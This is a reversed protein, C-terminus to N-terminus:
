LTCSIDFAVTQDPLHTHVGIFRLNKSECLCVGGGLFLFDSFTFCTESSCYPEM